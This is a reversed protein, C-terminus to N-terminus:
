EHGELSFFFLACTVSVSQQLQVASYVSFPFFDMAPSSSLFEFLVLRPFCVCNSCDDSICILQWGM